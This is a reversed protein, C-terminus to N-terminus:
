KKGTGPFCGYKVHPWNGEIKAGEKALEEIEEEDGENDEDDRLFHQLNLLFLSDMPDM